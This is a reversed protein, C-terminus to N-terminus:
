KSMGQIFNQVETSNWMGSDATALGATNLADAVAQHEAGTWIMRLVLRAVRDEHIQADTKELVGDIKTEVDYKTM